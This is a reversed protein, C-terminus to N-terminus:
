LLAHKSAGVTVVHMKTQVSVCEKYVNYYIGDKEGSIIGLVSTMRQLEFSCFAVSVEKVSYGKGTSNNIATLRPQLMHSNNLAVVSICLAAGRDFHLISDNGTGRHQFEWLSSYPNIRSLNVLRRTRDSSYYKFSM